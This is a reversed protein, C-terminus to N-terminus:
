AARRARRSVVRSLARVCLPDFQTGACSRLEALADEESLPPRYPRATTMAEYADAVTVIRAVLPSQGSALGDPYGAGDHREHHSRVVSLVVPHRIHPSLLREGSAPHARVLRWEDDTLRGPKCLVEAPVELKGVDHLVAGLVLATLEARELELEFAIGVALRAVGRAHARAQADHRFYRRAIMTVPTHGGNTRRDVAAAATAQM